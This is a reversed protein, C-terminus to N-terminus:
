PHTTIGIDILCAKKFMRPPTCLLLFLNLVHLREFPKTLQPAPITSPVGWPGPQLLRALGVGWVRFGTPEYSGCTIAARM